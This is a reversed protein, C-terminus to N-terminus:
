NAKTRRPKLKLTNVRLGYSRDTGTLAQLFLPFEQGLLQSMRNLFAKPL